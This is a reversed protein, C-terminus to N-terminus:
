SYLHLAMIPQDKRRSTSFHSRARSPSDFELVEEPLVGSCMATSFPCSATTRHSISAPASTFSAVSSRAVGSYMAASSPRSATTRHRTSAPASRLLASPLRPRVDVHRYIIVALGRQEDGVAYINM